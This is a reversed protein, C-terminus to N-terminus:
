FTRYVTSPAARIVPDEERRSIRSEGVGEGGHLPLLLLRVAFKPHPHSPTSHLTPQPDLSRPPPLPAACTSYPRASYIPYPRASYIPVQWLSLTSLATAVYLLIIGTWQMMEAEETMGENGPRALMLLTLAIMQVATKIKGYSGVAVISRVGQTAAWERLASVAVERGIMLSTPLAVPTGLEATLFVLCVCVLLKDAVPDLYAGYDSQASWRRALYGDLWDTIASFAFVLIVLWRYSTCFGFILM